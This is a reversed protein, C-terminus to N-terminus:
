DDIRKHLNIFDSRNFGITKFFSLVDADYWRMSTHVAPIGKSKYFKFISQALQSGIGKGMYEPLVGAMLIWASKQDGFSGVLVKSIMYGVIQGDKEAVFCGNIEQKAVEGVVEQIDIAEPTQTISQYIRVIAPTDEQRLKRVIVNEM